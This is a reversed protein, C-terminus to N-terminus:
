EPNHKSTCRERNLGADPLLGMHTQAAMNWETERKEQVWVLYVQSLWVFRAETVNNMRKENSIVEPSIERLFVACARMHGHKIIQFLRSLILLNNNSVGQLSFM